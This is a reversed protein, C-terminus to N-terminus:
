IAISSCFFSSVLPEHWTKQLFQLEAYLAQIDQVLAHGVQQELWTWEPIPTLRLLTSLTLPVPQDSDTTSPRTASDLLM